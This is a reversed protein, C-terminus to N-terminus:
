AIKAGDGKGGGISLLASIALFAALAFAFMVFGAFEHLFGQGAQDGLHYTILSLLVIRVINAGIAIPVISLIAIGLRWANRPPVLHLYLLGVASLSIISNMGACAEAVLLQYQGITIIVGDRATPYGFFYLLDAAAASVLAKLNATAQAIVFAPLPISIALFLIPFWMRMLLQPGGVLWLAGAIIPLHAFAEFPIIKTRAGLLYLAVGFALMAIAPWIRNPPLSELFAGRTRWFLFLAIAIVIPAHEADQALWASQAFRVYSMGLV